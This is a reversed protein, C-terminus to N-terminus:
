DGLLGSSVLSGSQTNATPLGLRRTLLSAGLRSSIDRNNGHGAGGGTRACRDRYGPSLPRPSGRPAAPHPGNQDSCCNGGQRSGQVGTREIPPQSMGGKIGHQDDVVAQLHLQLVATGASPDRRGRLGLLLQRLRSEPPYGPTSSGRFSPPPVPLSSGPVPTYSLWASCKTRLSPAVPEFGTVEVLWRNRRNEEM